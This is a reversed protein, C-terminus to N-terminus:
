RFFHEFMVPTVKFPMKSLVMLQLFWVVCLGYMLGRNKFKYFFVMLPVAWWILFYMVGILLWIMTLLSNGRMFLIAAHFFVICPMSGILLVLVAFIIGLMKAAFIMYNKAQINSRTNQRM